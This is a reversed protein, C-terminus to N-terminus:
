SRYLLDFEKPTLTIEMGSRSVRHRVADIELSGVV